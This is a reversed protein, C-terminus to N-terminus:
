ADRCFLNDFEATMQQVDGSTYYFHTSQEMEVVEVRGSKRLTKASRNSVLEDKRSQFAIAPVHLKELAKGTAQMEQLLEVLRPIWGLYQWLKKTTEVGCAAMMASGVTNEPRILGFPLRMLNIVGSFRLGVYLPVQLLYLREVKEPQELAIQLAFLTGMSHGAIIVQDHEAALADFAQRAHNRWAKMSSKGFDTVSGGHGPYCVNHVSYGQPVRSELDICKRFHEPSGCIGHLMLVAGKPNPAIRRCEEHAM